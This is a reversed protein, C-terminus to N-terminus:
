ARLNEEQRDLSEWDSESPGKVDYRRGQRVCEACRSSEQTNVICQRNQRACPSCPNMESSYTSSEILRALRLQEKRKRLTESSM